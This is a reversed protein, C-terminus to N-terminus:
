TYNVDISTVNLRSLILYPIQALIFVFVSQFNQVSFVFISKARVTWYCWVSNVETDWSIERENQMKKNQKAM